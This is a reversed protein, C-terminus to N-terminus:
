GLITLPVLIPTPRGPCVIEVVLRNMAEVHEGATIVFAAKAHQMHKSHPAPTFLNKACEVSWGEPALFRLRYHKQEPLTHQRLSISGSLTGQTGGINKGIWCAFIRDRLFEKTFSIM